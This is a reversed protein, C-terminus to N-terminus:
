FPPPYFASIDLDTSTKVREKKPYCERKGQSMMLQTVGLPHWGDLDFMHAGSYHLTWVCTTVSKDVDNSISDLSNSISWKINYKCVWPRWYYKTQWFNFWLAKHHLITPFPPNKNEHLREDLCSSYFVVDLYTLFADFSKCHLINPNLKEVKKAKESRAIPWFKYKGFECFYSADYATNIYSVIM